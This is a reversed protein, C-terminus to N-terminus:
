QSFLISSGSQEIDLDVKKLKNLSKTIKKRIEISPAHFIMFGGGGAGLLKGGKAGSSIGVNYIDDVTNNTIGDSIDRKLIWNKHLISGFNDLSNSELEKKLEWVCDKMTLMAKIKSDNKLDESQRKLIENADRLGGLYFSITQRNLKEILDEKCKINEIDVSSDKNFKYVKLGGFVAAYQDQKGIPNGCLNIELHCALEALEIDSLDFGKYASLGKLLGVSFSSSSGMGSGSSPIDAISVIELDDQIKFYELANKVYPHNIDSKNDVTETKSYSLRIGKEFRSKIIIYVYKQVASSLVAGGYNEYFSPLDSGGGVYSM